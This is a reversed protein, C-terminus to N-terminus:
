FEKEIRIASEFFKVQEDFSWLDRGTHAIIKGPEYKAALDVLLRLSDSHNKGETYILPLYELHYDALLAKFKGAEAIEEVASEVGDYGGASILSIQEELSGTMGWLSKFVKIKM